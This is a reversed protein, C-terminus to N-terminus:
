TADKVKAKIEEPTLEALGGGGCRECPKPQKSLVPHLDIDAENGDEEKTRAREGKGGCQPCTGRM